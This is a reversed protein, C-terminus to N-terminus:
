HWVQSCVRHPRKRSGATPGHQLMYTHGTLHCRANIPLPPLPAKCRHLTGAPCCGPAAAPRSVCGGSATHCCPLGLRVGPHFDTCTGPFGQAHACLAALALVPHAPQRGRGAPAGKDCARRGGDAPQPLLHPHAAGCVGAGGDTCEQACAAPSLCSFAHCSTPPHTPTRCPVLKGLSRAGKDGRNRDYCTSGFRTPADM